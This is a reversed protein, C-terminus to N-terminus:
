FRVAYQAKVLLQNSELRWDGSLDSVNHNYVVFLDGLPDFTWRLRSNVGVVRSQNDYQVLANWQLDSSFNLQLRGSLLYQDFDGAPLRGVNYEGAMELTLFELPKTLLTAEFQHLTGDYFTGFWWTLQGSVPRKSAIETELRYRTWHYSGPPIVVGDAIEFGEALREGEPAVNFEFRDGSEFQWNVPATFFRYSEWEGGLDLAVSPRFEFYMWRVWSWAPRFRWNAGGSWLHVNRRPVFSLSPDFGDGIRKYTLAVDWTDNPYDVAAGFATKDGALDERGTVLGWVGVLLNKDGWLRSTQFTADVGSMWSGPRGEPDGFTAIAGISSEALVNQKVRAAGMTAPAVVTTDGNITLTEEGTRVAFGGFNTQGLRGNAKGGLVLPIEQGYLLGIRRSHFPVLDPRYFTELGIGFDFIDAGELFFTRKEPYFLPFRTLNTQRNDVETEAFDTNVTLSAVADPGLQQFVDLSPEGTARSEADFAPKEFGAVLAPRVTLGLGLTFEPLNQLQGARSPQTVKADRVPSAWRSVEQLRELRREVNFGWEPVGSRFSLSRVPIRIEASWGDARRATGAEWAADWAANEGEGFDAVLADYRAGSPNVAFIYGSRGDLFTDLILKVHDEDELASDRAKSYSVIRSVDPDHCDIGIILADADAIVRVTTRGVLPGGEVPEIMTLGPISDADRWSPEDLRGDLTIPGALRGVKLTPRPSGQGSAPRALPGSVMVTVLALVGIARAAPM